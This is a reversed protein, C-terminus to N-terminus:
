RQGNVHAYAQMMAQARAVADAASERVGGGAEPKGGKRPGTVFRVTPKGRVRGGRGAEGGEAERAWGQCAFGLSSWLSAKM